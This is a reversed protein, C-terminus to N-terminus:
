IKEKSYYITRTTEKEDGNVSFVMISLDNKGPDLNFLNSFTGDDKSITVTDNGASSILIQSNSSTKGSVLIAKEFVLISDDPSTVDLNLSNPEATVPNPYSLQTPEPRLDSLLKPGQWIAGAVLSGLVLVSFAKILLMSGM